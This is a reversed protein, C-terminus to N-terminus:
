YHLFILKQHESIMIIEEGSLKILKPYKNTSKADQGLMWVRLKIKFISSLIKGLLSSERYWFCLIGDYKNKKCLLFGKYIAKILYPLFLYYKKFGSGIPYVNINNYNYPKSKPFFLSVLDIEINAKETFATSFQSVFPAIYDEENNQPFLPAIFLLKKTM